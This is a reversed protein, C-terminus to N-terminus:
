IHSPRSPFGGHLYIFYAYPLLVKVTVHFTAADTFHQFLRNNNNINRTSKQGFRYMVMAPTDEKKNETYGGFEISIM